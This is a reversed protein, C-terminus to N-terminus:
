SGGESDNDQLLCWKRHQFLQISGNMHVEVIEKTLYLGIGTGGKEEKTTFYPEFLLPMDAAPIQHGENTINIVTVAKKKVDQEASIRIGIERKEPSSEIIADRANNLINFIGQCFENRYGFASYTEEADFNVVIRNIKISEQMLSLAAQISENM